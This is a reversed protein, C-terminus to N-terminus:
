NDPVDKVGLTQKFKELKEDHSQYANGGRELYIIENNDQNTLVYYLIVLLDDKEAYHRLIHFWITEQSNKYNNVINRINTPVYDPIYGMDFEKHVYLSLQIDSSFAPPKPIIYPVKEYIKNVNLKM